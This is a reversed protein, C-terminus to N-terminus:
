RSAIPHGDRPGRLGLEFGCPQWQRRCADDLWAIGSCESPLLMCDGAAILFLRPPSPSRYGFLKVRLKQHCSADYFSARRPKLQTCEIVQMSLGAAANGVVANAASADLGARVPDSGASSLDTGAAVLGLAAAASGFAATTAALLGPAASLHAVATSLPSVMLQEFIINKLFLNAYYFFIAFCLADCCILIIQNQCAGPRGPAQMYLLRQGLQM